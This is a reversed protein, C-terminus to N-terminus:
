YGLKPEAVAKNSKAPKDEETTLNLRIPLTFATRVKKGRLIGPNWKSSSKLLKLAAEGTGYGLDKLVRFDSLSGDKEVIFLVEIIGNIKNEVAAKPYDYNNAFWEMFTKMGGVPMAFVEPNPCITDIGLDIKDFQILDGGSSSLTTMEVSELQAPITSATWKSEPVQNGTMLREGETDLDKAGTIEVQNISSEVDSVIDKARTTNFVLTSGAVVLLMPLVSVYLLRKKQASKNKFLMMIRKKLFSHNSFEHALPLHDVQLAHAVLMEAYAVKDTSCIEDALCEHQFKLEKQFFYLIPNFWNFIKLLEMLLLDYSHGQDVHVREHSEISSSDKISEGIIIKNFFSFSLYDHEHRLARVLQIVRFLLFICAIAVGVWYVYTLIDILYIPQEKPSSIAIDMYGSLDVMPISYAILEAKPLEIFIGIPALLSFFIMGILYVRNWQFFTLKRFILRYLVFSIILSVNVILLYIM